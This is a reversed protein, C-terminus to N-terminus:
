TSWCWRNKDSLMATIDKNSQVFLYNMIEEDDINDMRVRRLFAWFVIDGKEVAKQAVKQMYLSQVKEFAELDGEVRVFHMSFTQYVQASAFTSLLLILPLLKKM